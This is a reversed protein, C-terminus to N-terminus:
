GQDKMTQRMLVKCISSDSDYEDMSNQIHEWLDNDKSPIMYVQIVKPMPKPNISNDTMKLGKIFQMVILLTCGVLFLALLINFYLVIFNGCNISIFM